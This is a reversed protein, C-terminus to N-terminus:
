RRPFLALPAGHRALDHRQGPLLRRGAPRPTALRSGAAQCTDKYDEHYAFDNFNGSPSTVDDTTLMGQGDFTRVQVYDSQGDGEVDYTESLTVGRSDYTASFRFTVVGDPNKQVQELINDDADYTLELTSDVTGDDALDISVTVNRDGNTALYTSSDQTGDPNTTLSSVPVRSAGAYTYALNTTEPTGAGTTVSTVDTLLRGQDDYTAIEDTVVTEAGTADTEVYHTVLHEANRTYVEEYDTAADGNSDYVFRSVYHGADYTFTGLEQGTAYTLMFGGGDYTYTYVSEITGDGGVDYESCLADQTPFPGDGGNNGGGGGGGCAAAGLAVMVVALGHLKM